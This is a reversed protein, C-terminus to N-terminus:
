SRYFLSSHSGDRFAAIYYFFAFWIKIPKLKLSVGIFFVVCEHGCHVILLIDTNATGGIHCTAEELQYPDGNLWFTEAVQNRSKFTSYDILFGRWQEDTLATQEKIVIKTIHMSRNKGKGCPKSGKNQNILAKISSLWRPMEDSKHEKSNSTLGFTKHIVHCEKYIHRSCHKQLGKM